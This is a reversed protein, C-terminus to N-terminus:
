RNNPAPQPAPTIKGPETRPAIQDEMEASEDVPANREAADLNLAPGLMEEFSQMSPPLSCNLCTPDLGLQAAAREAITGDIQGPDIWRGTDDLVMTGLDYDLGRRLVEYRVWVQMYNDQANQLNTIADLLDRAATSGLASGGGGGAGAGGGGLGAGAGAGGGGIGARAPQDLRFRAIEFQEVAVQVNRRSLEFQIKFQDLTRLTLRLNRSVEDEYQYYQRRARQYRILTDRYQNRESFRVIPTDFRFGGRLVGTKYDIKFPNNGDNGMNGELVLDFQSELQDAVFEIQRWNDVLAARANMWDLRFCSAIETARRPTMEVQPLSISNSRALAQTLSVEILLNNLQTFQDAVAFLIENNVFDYYQDPPLAAKQAPASRIKEQLIQLNERVKAVNQLTTELATRLNEPQPVSNDELIAPDVDGLMEGSQVKSRLQTLYGIRDPRVAELRQFDQSLQQQDEAEIGQVERLAQELYANLNSLEQELDPSWQHNEADERTTPLLADIRNLQDGAIKRLDIVRRQREQIPMSILRFQSLFTDVVNVPVWPPLGLVIKFRDLDNQYNTKLQLLNGQAAFLRSETQKVQLADVRDRRQFERFQEVVDELYKVNIEQNLINQQTQLLGLVGGVGFTAQTPNGLFNGAGRSLSNAAARGVTIELFFGQRFREFQRVNGLLDRESQTLSEMIRDRGAGRMLPQIISFNILSNATQTTSNGFNWLISNALGVTYSAGTIGLKRFSVGGGSPGLASSITSEGRRLALFSNYGAFLQSDFGFRELAVDLATLYLEERQRQYITSHLLALDFSREFDLLVEGKENMPLYQLWEPNEVYVTDGNAHWHPYGPRGDVRRMLEGSVPDDPPIPPHDQSFPNFMRSEPAVKIDGSPAEWRPDVAKQQVLDSADKDAM